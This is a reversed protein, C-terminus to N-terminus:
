RHHETPETLGKLIRRIRAAGGDAYARHVQVLSAGAAIRAKVDEALRVGGVSIVTLGDLYTSITHIRDLSDSVLVAGDLGSGRLAMIAAPFATRHRRAELKVLLPVRHGGVASLVDRAVCLRKVLMDIGSMNGDRHLAPASLNAVVYDCLGYVQRLTAVYDEIVQEDLGPRASGINIGIRMRSRIRGLTAARGTAPTVTGFEIHGFGHAALSPVLEGTRDFGAALGLPNSFSLGLVTVSQNLAPLSGRHHTRNEGVHM